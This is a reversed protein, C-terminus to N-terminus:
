MLAALSAPAPIRLLVNRLEWAKAPELNEFYQV